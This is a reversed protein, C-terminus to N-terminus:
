VPTVGRVTPGTRGTTLKQVKAEWYDINARIEAANARTLSRGAITYAQGSAVAEDAALWAALHTEAQALTIGAMMM